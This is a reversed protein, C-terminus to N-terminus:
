RSPACSFLSSPKSSSVTQSSILWYFTTKFRIQNACDPLFKNERSRTKKFRQGELTRWRQSTLRRVQDNRSIAKGFEKASLNLPPVGCLSRILEPQGGRCYIRNMKPAFSFWAICGTMTELGIRFGRRIAGTALDVRFFRTQPWLAHPVFSKNELLCTM